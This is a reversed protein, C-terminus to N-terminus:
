DASINKAMQLRVMKVIPPNGVGWSITSVQVGNVIVPDGAQTGSVNDTPEKWNGSVSTFSIVAASAQGALSLVFLASLFASLILVPRKM